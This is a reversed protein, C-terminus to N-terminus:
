AISFAQCPFGATLLEFDPISKAKIERIDGEVLEKNGFNKKDFPLHKVAFVKPNGLVPFSHENDSM